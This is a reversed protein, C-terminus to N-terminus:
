SPMFDCGCCVHGVDANNHNKFNFHILKKEKGYYIGGVFIM